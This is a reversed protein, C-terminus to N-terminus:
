DERKRRYYTRLVKDDGSTWDSLELGELVVKPSVQLHLATKDMFRITFYIWGDEIAHSVWDVKKGRIEKYKRRLREHRERINRDIRKLQRATFPTVRTSGVWVVKSKKKRTM